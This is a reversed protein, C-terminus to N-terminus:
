ARAVAENWVAERVVGYVALAEEYWAAAAADEITTAIGEEIATDAAERRHTESGVYAVRDATYISVAGDAFDNAERDYDDGSDDAIAAFADAAIEYTLDDPLIDFADHAARVADAVWEPADTCTTLATAPAQPERTTITRFANAGERAITRITDTDTSM